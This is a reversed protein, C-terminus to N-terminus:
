YVIEVNKPTEVEKIVVHEQNRYITHGKRTFECKKIMKEQFTHCNDYGPRSPYAWGSKFSKAFIEILKVVDEPTRKDNKDVIMQFEEDGPKGHDLDRARGRNLIGDVGSITSFFDVQKKPWWGYSQDGIEVWWHGYLDRDPNSLIRLDSETQKLQNVKTKYLVGWLVKMRKFVIREFERPLKKQEKKIEEAGVECQGGM